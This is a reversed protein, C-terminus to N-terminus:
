MFTSSSLAAAVEWTVKDHDVGDISRVQWALGEDDVVTDGLQYLQYRYDPGNANTETDMNRAGGATKM